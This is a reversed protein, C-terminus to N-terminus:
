VTLGFAKRFNDGYVGKEEWAGCELAKFWEQPFTEGALTSFLGFGLSNKFRYFECLAAFRDSNNNELITLLQEKIIPKM